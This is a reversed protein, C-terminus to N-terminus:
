STTRRRKVLLRMLFLGVVFSLGCIVLVVSLRLCYFAHLNVCDLERLYSDLNLLGAPTFTRLGAVIASFFDAEASGTSRAYELLCLLAYPGLIILTSGGLALPIKRVWMCFCMSVVVLTLVAIGRVILDFYFFEGITIYMPCAVYEKLIQIPADWHKVQQWHYASVVQIGWYLLLLLLAVVSVASIRNWACRIPSREAVSVTLYRRRKEDMTTMHVVLLVLFALYVFDWMENHTLQYCSWDGGSLVPLELERNYTEFVYQYQALLVEDPEDKSREELLDYYANYVMRERMNPFSVVNYECVSLARMVSSIEFEYVDSYRLPFENSHNQANLLDHLYDDLYKVAEDTTMSKSVENLIEEEIAAGRKARSLNWVVLLLLLLVVLLAYRIVRSSLLRRIELYM